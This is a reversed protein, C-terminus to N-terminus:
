WQIHFPIYLRGGRGIFWCFYFYGILYWLNATLPTNWLYGGPESNGRRAVHVGEVKGDGIPSYVSAWLNSALSLTQRPQTEQRM